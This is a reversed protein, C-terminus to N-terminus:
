PSLIEYRDFPRTGFLADAEAILARHPEIQEPTAALLDSTDAFLNLHVRERGDLAIRSHYRGAFLPSDVLVDLPM